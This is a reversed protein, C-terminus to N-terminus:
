LMERELKGIVRGSVESVGLCAKLSGCPFNRCAHGGSDDWVFCPALEKGVLFEIVYQITTQPVKM